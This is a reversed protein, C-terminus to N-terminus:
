SSDNNRCSPKNIYNEEKIELPKEQIDIVENEADGVIHALVNIRRGIDWINRRRYHSQLLTNCDRM